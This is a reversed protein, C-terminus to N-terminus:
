DYVKGHNAAMEVMRDYEDATLDMFYYNVPNVVQGKVHVEYHLHPGTSKGTSGVEGITEGRKVQQGVKVSIKNLHAYRTTYGFGHDIVICKGYLGDWGAQVVKGNGTVYVPTGVNASFDMGSHFKLTKYIPDIRMGYGSATQKLNKNAVPQIAPICTLMEDHQKCLDVVEDFSKSQVYIQRALLDMKQTTNVVLEANAMDTLEEYRNTEGYSATRLGDAVPDAQMIFRYLNDDRQQLRKMVELAENLRHSLINYQAQLRANETRLDKESPSGFIFLLLLFSGAGLGIGLMLRRVYSLMRQRITPYIRDYTRTKPNYIYYVKRM